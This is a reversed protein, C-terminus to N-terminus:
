AARVMIATINDKSGREYAREVLGECGREVDPASMGVKIEEDALGELLGDTCLLWTDGPQVAEVRVDPACDRDMFGLARTIVHGYPYDSLPPMDVVGADQMQNYLSHDRTVQVLEGQRLRYVRSDGVHGVVIKDRHRLLMAITTGMKALRGTKRAVIARHALTIAAMVLNEAFSWQPSAGIPWTLGEDEVNRRLFDEITEVALASAVEGGEYGGMGDAVVYLGLSPSVNLADENNQRRGTHTTAKHILETM